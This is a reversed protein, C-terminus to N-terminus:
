SIIPPFATTVFLDAVLFFIIYHHMLIYYKLIMNAWIFRRLEWYQTSVSGSIVDIGATCGENQHEARLQSIL